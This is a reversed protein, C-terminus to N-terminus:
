VIDSYLDDATKEKKTSEFVPSTDTTLVTEKEETLYSKKVEKKAKKLREENMIKISKEKLINYFEEFNNTTLNEAYSEILQKANDDKIEETVDRTLGHKILTDIKRKLKVNNKELLQKSQILDDKEKRNNKDNERLMNYTNNLRNFKEQLKLLQEKYNLSEEAISEDVFSNKMEMMIERSVYDVYEDIQKKESKIFHNIEKEKDNEIEMIKFKLRDDFSESIIHIQGELFSELINKIKEKMLKPLTKNGIVNMIKDIEEHVSKALESEELIKINKITNIRKQANEKIKESFNDDKKEESDDKLKKEIDKIQQLLMKKNDTPEEYVEKETGEEDLEDDDEDLSDVSNESENLEDIEMFEKEFINKEIDINYSSDMLNFGENKKINLTVLNDNEEIITVIDDKIIVSDETVIDNKAMYIKM